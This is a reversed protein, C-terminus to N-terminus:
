HAAGQASPPGSPPVSQSVTSPPAKPATEETSTSPTISKTRMQEPMSSEVRGRGLLSQIIVKILTIPRMLSTPPETLNTVNIFAMMIDPDYPMLKIVRDVYKQIMRAMPTTKGGTTTPYRLDEGTSMLWANQTAQAVRKQFELPLGDLDGGRKNLMENLTIAEMAALTMGQGYIPNFACAADGMVVFGDPMAPLNEYHRRLNATRQYGYVSTLPKADKIANYFENTALKKTFEVWAEDDTPPHHDKVGAVTAMWRGGEVQFIAGGYPIDPPRANIFLIRWPIEKDTPREYWRTTYMLDSNIETEEPAQYGLAQLWKPAHSGRGSADVILEAEIIREGSAVAGNQQAGRRPQVKIGMVRSKDPDTSLDLVDHEELITVNGRDLLHTRVKWELLARSSLKTIIGTDYYPLWGGSTMFATNIGWHQDPAGADSLDAILGPFLQELLQQGHALLAHVHRAQPVGNRMEPGDPLRDREIVTVRSFHDALVRAACLGAMSSGIVVAHDGKASMSRKEDFEDFSM